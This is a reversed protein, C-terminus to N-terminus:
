YEYSYDYDSEYSNEQEEIGFTNKMDTIFADMEAEFQGMSEDFYVDAAVKSEDAFIFEINPESYTYGWEDTTETLIIETEAIIEGNEYALTIDINENMVELMKSESSNIDIKESIAKSNVSTSLKIDIIQYYFSASSLLEGIISLDEIAEMNDMTNEVETAKKETFDGDAEAGFSIINAGNHTFAFDESVHSTSSSVTASILFQGEIDLATNASTPLGEANYSATMTYGLLQANDVKLYAKISTPADDELASLYVTKVETVAFEANNSTGTETSPFKFVIKDTATTFDWEGTNPNWSYIGAEESFSDAISGSSAKLKTAIIKPDNGNEIAFLVAGIGSSNGELTSMASMTQMTKSDKLDELESVLQIGANEVDQKQEAVPKESFGPENSGKDKKCSVLIVGASLLALLSYKIQKM